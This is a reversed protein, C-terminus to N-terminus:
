LSQIVHRLGYVDLSLWPCLCCVGRITFCVVVVHTNHTRTCEEAASTTQLMCENSVNLCLEELSWKKARAVDQRMATIYAEPTFLGGLWIQASQVCVLIFWTCSPVYTIINM